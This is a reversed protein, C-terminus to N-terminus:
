VAGWQTFLTASENQICDRQLQGAENEAVWVYGRQTKAALRTFIGNRAKM